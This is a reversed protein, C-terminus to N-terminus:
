SKKSCNRNYVLLIADTFFNERNLIINFFCKGSTKVVENDSISTREVYFVLFFVKNKYCCFNKITIIKTVLGILFIIKSPVIEGNNDDVHHTKIKTLKKRTKKLKGFFVIAIKDRKRSKDRLMKKFSENLVIKM